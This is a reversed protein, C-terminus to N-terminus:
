SIRLDRCQSSTYYLFANFVRNYVGGTKKEANHDDKNAVFPLLLKFGFFYLMFAVAASVNVTLSVHM